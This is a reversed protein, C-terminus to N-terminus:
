QGLHESRSSMLKKSSINFFAKLFAVGPNLGGAMRLRVCEGRARERVVVRSLCKLQITTSQSTSDPIEAWGVRPTTAGSEAECCMVDVPVRGGALGRRGGGTGDGRRTTQGM